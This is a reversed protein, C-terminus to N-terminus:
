LWDAPYKYRQKELLKNSSDFKEVEKAWEFHKKQIGQFDNFMEVVDASHNQFNIKELKERASQCNSQFAKL